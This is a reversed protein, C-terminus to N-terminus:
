AKGYLHLRVSPVTLEAAVDPTGDSWLEAPAYTKFKRQQTMSVDCGALLLAVAIITAARRIITAARRM